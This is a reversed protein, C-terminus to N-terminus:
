CGLLWRWKSLLERRRGADAPLTLPRGRADVVVGLVGGVIRLKGGRGPGGMGVDCGHLPQLHIQASQGMPLQVVELSGQKVDLKTEAGGDAILRLRLIPTGPRADSVPSIVTGLNLFANSELVQVVLLPNIAAAAGLVSSLHNQDLVLTTVGTPQLGDLLMLMTQSLNPARTLASGLVIIPELSPLLGAGSSFRRQPLSGFTKRLAIQMVQRVIAQEIALDESTAPLSAPYLAKQYLYQRVEDAAIDLHLWQVIHELPCLSSLGQLSQGLGLAPYVRTTLDGDFAVAVSTAAAGVDVGLVGKTSQYVKSLFRVIRGMGASAPLLGGGAWGDVDKVGPIQRIRINRVIETLRYQAGELQETELTPRINAAFHLHGIKEFTSRIEERLSQNGVFLVEPRQEEALLYSALGAVELLKLVSQSAGAETGGAILILDPRLRLISDVRAEMKRRDNLGMVEVVQAYTTAALHRASELSIDDLLGMVVVRLPPGASLTAAVTDVGLGDATSPVILREDPGVLIRGTIAQLRDIALRIGEGVDHYPTEVTSPATGMAIFRYRGDVVDFLAVRTTVSGIDITLLSDAQVLSTTM